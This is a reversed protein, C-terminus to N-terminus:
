LSWWLLAELALLLVDAGRQMRRESRQREAAATVQAEALIRRAEVEGDSPPIQPRIEVLRAQEGADLWILQCVLCVDVEVGDVDAARMKAACSPCDLAAVPAGRAAQWLRGFSAKDTVGRLQTLTVAHGGCAECPYIRLGERHLDGLTTRCRPCTHRM